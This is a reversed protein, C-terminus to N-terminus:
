SNRFSILSSNSFCVWSANSICNSFSDQLLVPYIVSSSHLPIYEPTAPTIVTESIRPPIDAIAVRIIALSTLLPSWIQHYNRFVSPVRLLLEFCFAPSIGPIHKVTSTELSNYETELLGMTSYWFLLIESLKEM